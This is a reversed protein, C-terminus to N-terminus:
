PTMSCSAPVSRCHCFKIERDGPVLMPTPTHSQGARQRQLTEGQKRSPRNRSRAAPNGGRRVQMFIEGAAKVWRAPLKPLEEDSRDTNDQLVHGTGLRSSGGDPLDSTGMWLSHSRRGLALSGFMDGKSSVQYYTIDLAVHYVGKETSYGHCRHSAPVLM